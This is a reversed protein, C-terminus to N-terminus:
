RPGAPTAAPWGFRAQRTCCSAQRRILAGERLNRFRSGQSMMIVEARASLAVNLRLCNWIVWESRAAVGRSRGGGGPLLRRRVWCIGCQRTRDEPLRDRVLSCRVAEAPALAPPGRGNRRKASSVMSAANKPSRGAFEDGGVGINERANELDRRAQLILREVDKRMFRGQRPLSDRWGVLHMIGWITMRAYIRPVLMSPLVRPASGEGQEQFGRGGCPAAAQPPVQHVAHSLPLIAGRPIGSGLHRLPKAGRTSPRVAIRRDGRQRDRSTIASPGTVPRGGATVPRGWSQGQCGRGASTADAPRGMRGAKVGARARGPRGAPEAAAALRNFRRLGTELKRHKGGIRRLRTLYWWELPVIGDGRQPIPGVRICTPDGDHHVGAPVFPPRRAPPVPPSEALGLGSPQRALVEVTDPFANGLIGPHQAWAEVCHRSV